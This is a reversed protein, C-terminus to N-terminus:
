IIAKVEYLNHDKVRLPPDDIMIQRWYFILDTQDTM